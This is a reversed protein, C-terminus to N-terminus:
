RTLMRPLGMQFQNRNNTSQTGAKQSSSSAPTIVRAIIQAGEELGSVIETSSDNSLGIIVERKKPSVLKSSITEPFSSDTLKSLNKNEQEDIVEVYNIAGESKLASNPVLLVNNKSEVIISASITMGPKVREDQTDFVIKVNYSVVGQSVAGLIDVEAVIGSITLDELADFKLTAKQGVKVKAADVENLSIEALHQKSVLTAVSSGASVQDGEAVNIKAVVGDFPARIFFNALAEKADSLADEKQKVAAEQSLITLEDPGAKLNALSQEKEKITREASIINEKDARLSNKISLLSALHSNTKATYNSLTTLQSDAIALHNINRKTLDDEYCQILTVINKVAEAISKTTEYSENVLNEIIDRESFRSAAKYDSLNKEYAIRAANYSDLTQQRYQNMRNDETVSVYYDVNWQSSTISHGFIIDELGTMIAPLELFANAVANFGDDYDKILNEEAKQKNEKAQILSNEAQLISLEDAPAKAKELNLQALKLNTEADRINKQASSSDLRAITAGAKLEQGNKVGVFVVEGAAKSKIELENSVMVQGTGSVSVVLPGKEALALVYKTEDAASKTLYGFSYLIVVLILVLCLISFIKHRWFFHFIKEFFSFFGIGKKM